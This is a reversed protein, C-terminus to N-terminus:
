SKFSVWSVKERKCSNKMQRQTMKFWKFLRFYRIFHIGNLNEKYNILPKWLDMLILSYQIIFIDFPFILLTKTLLQQVLVELVSRHLSSQENNSGVKLNSTSQTKQVAIKYNYIISSQIEILTFHTLASLQHSKLTSNYIRTYMNIKHLCRHKNVQVLNLFSPLTVQLQSHHSLLSCVIGFFATPFPLHNAFFLFQSFSQCKSSFSQHLIVSHILNCYIKVLIPSNSQKLLM